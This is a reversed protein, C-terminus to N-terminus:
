EGQFTLTLKSGKWSTTHASGLICTDSCAERKWGDDYIIRPDGNDILHQVRADAPPFLKPDSSPSYLIYDLWIADRSVQSDPQHTIVLKHPGDSLRPSM